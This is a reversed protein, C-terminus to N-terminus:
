TQAAALFHCQLTILVLKRPPKLTKKTKETLADASLGGGQRNIGKNNSLKGGVTVETIVKRGEVGTVRLQIRGDDFCFIAQQYMM